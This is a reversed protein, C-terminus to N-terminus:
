KNLREIYGNTSEDTQHVDLDTFLMYEKLFATRVTSVAGNRQKAIIIEAIGDTRNKPKTDKTDPNYVENRYLLLIVDPDQELAGSERLDSMRPRKNDRAEVQRNLQSLAIVPINLEKALAKLGRSIEAVDLERRESLHSSPALQLYDVIVLGLNKTERALRRCKARMKMPTIDVSDDIYIQPGEAIAAAAAALKPYDRPGTYGSKMRAGDVRALGALARFILEQRSMELSFVAVSVPKPASLTNHVAINLALASKGITPRAGIMWLEGPQAGGTLSDLDRIGTPLGLVEGRHESRWQIATLADTLGDKMPVFSNQARRECVDLIRREASEIFAEPDSTPEFADAAIDRAITAMTRMFSKGRVIKAYHEVHAATPVSDALEAIYAPGGIQELVGQSRLANTLTIADVPESRGSLALMARFIERHTERYFDDAGIIEVAKDLAANDWLISGLVTQDAEIAQPPTARLAGETDTSM